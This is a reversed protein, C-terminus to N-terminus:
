DPDRFAIAPIDEETLRRGRAILHQVQDVTCGNCVRAWTGRHARTENFTRSAHAHAYASEAFGMLMAADGLRGDMATLLAHYDAWEYQRWSRAVDTWNARSVARAEALRGCEILAGTLVSRVEALALVHRTGQLQQAMLLGHHVAEEAHGGALASNVLTVGSAFGSFGAARRLSFEILAAEYMAAGDGLRDALWVEALWRHKRLVAPWAADEIMRAESLCGQGAEAQEDILHIIASECLARYLWRRDACRPLNRRAAAVARDAVQRRLSPVSTMVMYTAEVLAWTAAPHDSSPDAVDLAAALLAAHRDVQERPTALILGPLLGLAAGAEDLARLQALAAMGNDLDPLHMEEWDDLRVRGGYRAQYAQEFHRAVALAHRRQVAPGEGSAALRESAFLWPTRLLRYGMRSAAGPVAALLSREVLKEIADMVSAEDIPGEGPPDAVVAQILRAGSTGQMASLRRLVVQERPALLGHSWALAHNLTQQRSPVDVRAASLRRLPDSLDEVLGRLGVVPARWAALEIALPLGDLARCLQIALAADADTLGFGADSARARDLFLAIAGHRLAETAPLAQAPVSLPGIRVVREAALKLPAQSTVLLRLGPAADHLAAAVRAVGHALHEASDLVVLMELSCMAHVLGALGVAGPRVQLTSAIAGPVAASDVVNALEVLCVGHRMRGEHRRLLHQALLTKGVGGPGLLTVLRQSELLAAIDGLERERGFVAPLTAPLNTRLRPADRRDAGSTSARPVLTFCYGHGSRTSIVGSGLVKRLAAVQVNLNNEEVDADPWVLDILERRGVVQGAREVLVILLDMARSGLPLAQGDALLLRERLLLEFAPRIGFAYQTMTHPWQAVGPM